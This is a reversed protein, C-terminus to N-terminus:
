WGIMLRYGFKPLTPLIPFPWTKGCHPLGRITAIWPHPSLARRLHYYAKRRYQWYFKSIALCRRVRKRVIGLNGNYSRAFLYKANKQLYSPFSRNCNSQKLDVELATGLQPFGIELPLFDSFLYASNVNSCNFLNSPLLWLGCESCFM